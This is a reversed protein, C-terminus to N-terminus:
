YRDILQCAIALRGDHGVTECIRERVEPHRRIKSDSVRLGHDRAVRGLLNAQCAATPVRDGSWLKRYGESTCAGGAHAAASLAMLSALVALLFRM